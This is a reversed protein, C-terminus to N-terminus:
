VRRIISLFSVYFPEDKVDGKESMSEKRDRGFVLTSIRRSLGQDLEDESPRNNESLHVRPDLSPERVDELSTIVIDDEAGTLTPTATTPSRTSTPTEQRNFSGTELVNIDNATHM